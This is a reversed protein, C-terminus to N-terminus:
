EGSTLQFILSPKEEEFAGTWQQQQTKIHSAQTRGERRPAHMRSSRVEYEVMGMLALLTVGSDPIKGQARRSWSCGVTALNDGSPEISRRIEGAM